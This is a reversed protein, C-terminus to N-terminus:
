ELTLRAPQAPPTPATSGSAEARFPFTAELFLALFAPLAAPRPPNAPPQPSALPFGKTNHTHSYRPAPRQRTVARGWGM